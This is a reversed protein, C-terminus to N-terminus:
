YGQKKLWVDLAKQVVWSFARDEDACYRALRDHLHPPLTVNKRIYPTYTPALQDPVRRSACDKRTTM